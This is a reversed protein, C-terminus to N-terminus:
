LSTGTREKLRRVIQWAAESGALYAGGITAAQHGASAEGAFWLREGVPRSYIERAGSHGVQAATYSGMSWPDSGWGSVRSGVILGRVDAGAIGAVIDSAAVVAAGEGERELRWAQSGGFMVTMIPLVPHIHVGHFLGAEAAALNVAYAPL